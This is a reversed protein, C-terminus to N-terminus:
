SHWQNSDTSHFQVCLIKPYVCSHPTFSFDQFGNEMLTFESELIVSTLSYCLFRFDSSGLRRRRLYMEIYLNTSENTIEWRWMRSSMDMSEGERGELVKTGMFFRGRENKRKQEDFEEVFYPSKFPLLHIVWFDHYSNRYPSMNWENVRWLCLSFIARHNLDISSITWQKPIIWSNRSYNKKSEIYWFTFWENLTSFINRRWERYM